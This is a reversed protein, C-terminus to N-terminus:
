RARSGIAASQDRLWRDAAAAAPHAEREAALLREFVAVGREDKWGFWELCRHMERLLESGDEEPDFPPEPPENVRYHNQLERLSDTVTANM